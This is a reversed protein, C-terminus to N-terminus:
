KSRVKTWDRIMSRQEKTLNSNEHLFIYSPLPMSAYATRFITKMKEDKDEQSYNEWTSFNLAKKGETIHTSIVWSFPAVNSYWPYKVENSHCDYCSTKLINMVELPAKIEFNKDVAINEKNTQIFQMLIFIILFILLTRKM